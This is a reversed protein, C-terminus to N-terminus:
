AGAKAERTELVTGLEEVDPWMEVCLALYLTVDEPDYEKDLEGVAEAIKDGAPPAADLDEIMGEEHPVGTIDLFRTVLGLRKRVLYGGLFEYCLEGSQPGALLRRAHKARKEMPLKRIAQPRFKLAKAVQADMPGFGNESLSDYIELFREDTFGHLRDLLTM